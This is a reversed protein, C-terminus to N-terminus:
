DRADDPASRDARSGEQQNPKPDRSRFVHSVLVEVLALAAASLASWVLAQRLSADRQGPRPPQKGTRRRYAAALATRM